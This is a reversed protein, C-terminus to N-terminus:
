AGVQEISLGCALRHAEQDSYGKDKFDAYRRQWDFYNILDQRDFPDVLDTRVNDITSVTQALHQRAARIVLERDCYRSGCVVHSNLAPGIIRYAFNDETRYVVIVYGGDFKGVYPGHIADDVFARVKEIANKKAEKATAGHGAIGCHLYTKTKKM